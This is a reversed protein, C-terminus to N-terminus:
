TDSEGFAQGPHFILSNLFRDLAFSVEAPKELIVMHGSDPIVQLIANPMSDALYQSYRLPTMQDHEGCIVITPIEIAPLFEIFDFTNCAIFDGHLVSPRTQYFREHALEVLRRETTSSFSNKVILEIVNPFEQPNSTITMIEKSVRLRAGTSVLGLGLIYEPHEHALTLAIAGGMSHGVFAARHLNITGMWDIVKDVYASIKHLGHGGSKGHGPLDLSFTRFGSMRRIEPPWFLHSGGAGHILVVPLDTGKGLNSQSFYIDTNISM